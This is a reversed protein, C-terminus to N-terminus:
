LAEESRCIRRRRGGSREAASQIAPNNAVQPITTIGNNAMLSTRDAVIEGAAASDAQAKALESQLQKLAQLVINENEEFSVQNQSEAYAHLKMENTRLKGEAIAAENTLATHMDLTSLRKRDLNRQKFDKVLTEAIKTAQHPDTHQVKVDVLRTLRIPVITVDDRLAIIPDIGKDKAKKYRPDKTDLDLDSIVQELLSASLLNKYQTQLYIAEDQSATFNITEKQLLSQQDRDMMLRATSEYYRDAKVWYILTLAFISIFCTIVLWRRELMVHWYHRLDVPTEQIPTTEAPLLANDM